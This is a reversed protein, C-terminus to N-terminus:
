FITSFELLCWRDIRLMLLVLKELASESERESTGSVILEVVPGSQDCSTGGGGRGRRDKCCWRRVVVRRRADSKVGGVSLAGLLALVGHGGPAM